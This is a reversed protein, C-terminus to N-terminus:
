LTQPPTRARLHRRVYRLASDLLQPSSYLRSHAAHPVHAVSEIFDHLAEIMAMRERIFLDKHMGGDVTHIWKPVAAAEYLADGMWSPCTEDASGHLVLLPVQLKKVVALTDFLDGAVLHMPVNPFTSRALERLNTFTSQLILGDFEHHEVVQAAVAGGLSFGYLISPLGVPRLTDHYRAATLGDAVVGGLSPSGTSRGFGRYDFTLVSLGAELLNPIMAASTTLNGSNGHCFVASAGPREARCYWAHLLEGDDTELWHEEVQAKPIGYADPDWSTEPTRRPAFLQAHRIARRALGAALVALGTMLMPKAAARQLKRLATVDM